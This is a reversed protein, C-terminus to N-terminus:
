IYKLSKEDLQSGSHKKLQHTFKNIMRAPDKLDQLAMFAFSKMQAAYAISEQAVKNLAINKIRLEFLNM